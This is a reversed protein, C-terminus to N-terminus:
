GVRQLNVYWDDNFYKKAPTLKIDIYDNCLKFSELCEKPVELEELLYEELMEM